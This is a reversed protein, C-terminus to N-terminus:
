IAAPTASPLVLQETLKEKHQLSGVCRRALRGVSRGARSERLRLFGSVPSLRSALWVGVGQVQDASGAMMM